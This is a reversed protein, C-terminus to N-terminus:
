NDYAQIETALFRGSADKEGLIVIRQTQVMDQTADEIESFFKPDIDVRATQERNLPLFFMYAFAPYPKGTKSSTGSEHFHPDGTLFGHKEIVNSFKEIKM